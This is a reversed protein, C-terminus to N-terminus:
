WQRLIEFDHMHQKVTSIETDTLGFIPQYQEIECESCQELRSREQTYISYPVIDSSSFVSVAGADSAIQLREDPIHTKLVFPKDADVLDEFISGEAWDFRSLVRSEIGESNKSKLAM